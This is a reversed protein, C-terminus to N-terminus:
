CTEVYEKANRNFKYAIPFGEADYERYIIPTISLLEERSKETKFTDLITKEVNSSLMMIELKLPDQMISDILRRMKINFNEKSKCIRSNVDEKLHEYKPNIEFDKAMGFEDYDRIFLIPEDPHQYKAEIKNLELTQLFIESYLPESEMKALFNFLYEIKDEIEM